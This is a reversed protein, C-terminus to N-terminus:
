GSLLGTGDPSVALSAVAGAHRALRQVERGHQVDWVRITKDDSGSFLWKGDTSFVLARVAASHGSFRRLEHGSAVDWMRISTGAAAALKEGAADFAVARGEHPMTALVRSHKADRLDWLRVTRDRGTSAAVHADATLAVAHVVDTHGSLVRLECPMPGKPVSSQ